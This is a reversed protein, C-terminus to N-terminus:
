TLPKRPVSSNSTGRAIASGFLGSLLILAIGGLLGGLVPGLGLLMDPPSSLNPARLLGPLYGVAHFFGSVISIVGSCRLLVIALERPTM